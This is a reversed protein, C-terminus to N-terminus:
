RPVWQGRDELLQKLMAPRDTMIGDVGLDLMAAAEEPTDVTWVHVQLGRAHAAAVFREDVL